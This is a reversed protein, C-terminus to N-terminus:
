SPGPRSETGRLDADVAGTALWSRIFRNIREPRWQVADTSAPLPAARGCDLIMFDTRREREPDVEKLVPAHDGYFALLVREAAADFHAALRALMADAHGIHHLYQQLPEDQGPVRGPRFPDHAEMTVCVLFLRVGDDRARRLEQEIVGAVAADSIYYGCREADPLDRQGIFREFGLAPIAERRRFFREDYPHLFVTRWGQDRLATALSAPAFRRPRLYPHLGDFSQEAAGLGTIASIEPRLTYAGFCPVELLGHVAARSRLRDFEPLATTIGIRRLDMFSESQVVVVADVDERLSNAPPAPLPRRGEGRWRLWATPLSLALGFRRVTDRPDCPEAFTLAQPWPVAVAAFGLLAAEAALLALQAPMPISRPEIGVWAAIVAVLLAAGGILALGERREIYFLSPHRLMPLIFAFDSFVLPEYLSRRKANSIAVLIALTVLSAVLAFWFRGFLGFWAGLLLLFVVARGPIAARSGGFMGRRPRALADVAEWAVAAGALGILELVVPM